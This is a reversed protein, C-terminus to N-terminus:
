STTLFYYFSLVTEADFTYEKLRYQVGRQELEETIIGSHRGVSGVVVSSMGLEALAMATILAGGGLEINIDDLM